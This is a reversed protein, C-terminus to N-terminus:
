SDLGLLLALVWGKQAGCWGALTGPLTTPHLEQILGPSCQSSQPKKVSFDTGLSKAAACPHSCAAEENRPGAMPFLPRLNPQVSLDALAEGDKM